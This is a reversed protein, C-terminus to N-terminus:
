ATSPSNGTISAPPRSSSSPTPLGWARPASPPADLVQTKPYPIGFQDCVEYFAAKKQLSTYLGAAPGPAIYQPLEAKRRIIMAAYDDTCGFLYLRKGAHQAAFDRLVRLMTPESDIDPVVTFHM